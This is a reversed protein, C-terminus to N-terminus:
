PMDVIAKILNPEKVLTAFGDKLAHFGVTHTIYNNTDILNDKMCQMVYEFDKRTANRSSMLTAERKHFEPHSFSINQKQLGILVYRGTHALLQFNNEIAKLSGTADIIVTPMNGSTIDKLEEFYDAHMPNLIHQVQFKKKCFQLRSDNVDTAIVQAGKLLAFQIAAIGIPGAGAIMVFENHNIDARSIGHAAIAFPEVVALHNLSLDDGRLIHTSPVSFYECMGGDAHVGAVQLHVCCNPKGNLCAICNNCNFYPIISVKEGQVFDDADGEVYEGALEHGLVRPYNFYPQTGDFAHIDTGCIGINKIRILSWGKSLAPIEKNDYDFRGPETCQLVQM